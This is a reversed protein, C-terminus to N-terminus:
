LEKELITWINEVIIKNGAANPHIGDAQNLSAVGGVKDLLFPILKTKYKKALSPYMMRFDATFKLGMNPPAEMGALIITAEPYKKQVQQIIFELNQYSATPDIGRLGDNGGLELVFIDIPQELIWDIRGKGGATTEGSNGANVVKYNLSLSDIRQQILSVFGQEPSSLGYGASLSNGFFVITKKTSTPPPSTSKNPSPSIEQPATSM